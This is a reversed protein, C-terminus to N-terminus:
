RDGPRSWKDPETAGVAGSGKDAEGRAGTQNRGRQDPRDREPSTPMIQFGRQEAATWQRSIWSCTVAYGAVGGFLATPPNILAGILGGCLLGVTAYLNARIFPAHELLFLNAITAAIAGLPAGFMRALMWYQHPAWYGVYETGTTGSKGLLGGIALIIFGALWGQMYGLALSALTLLVVSNNRGVLMHVLTTSARWRYLFRLPPLPSSYM